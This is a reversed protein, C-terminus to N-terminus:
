QNDRITVKNAIDQDIDQRKASTRLVIRQKPAHSISTVIGM